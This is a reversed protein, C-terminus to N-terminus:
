IEISRYEEDIRTVISDETKNHEVVKFDGSLAIWDTNTLYDFWDDDPYLMMLIYSIPQTNSDPLFLQRKVSKDLIYPKGVAPNVCHWYRMTYTVHM